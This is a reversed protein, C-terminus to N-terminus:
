PRNRRTIEVERVWEAGKALQEPAVTTLLEVVLDGISTAKLEARWADEARWMARAIGCPRKYAGAGRPAAAPGRQRIETCRFASGEGAVALVV